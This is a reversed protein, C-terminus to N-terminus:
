MDVVITIERTQQTKPEIARIKIQIANFPITMTPHTGTRFGAAGAPVGASLLNPNLAFQSTGTDWAVQNLAPGLLPRIDEVAHTSKTPANPGQPAWNTFFKVSSFPAPLANVQNDLDVFERAIPDWIKVDFSLIRGILIDSGAKPTPLPLPRGENIGNTNNVNNRPYPAGAPGYRVWNDGWCLRRERFQVDTPTNFMFYQGAPAGLFPLAVSPPVVRFASVDYVTAYGPPDAPTTQRHVWANDATAANGGGTFYVYAMTPGPAVFAAYFPVGNVNPVDLGSTSKPTGDSLSLTVPGVFTEPVLLNERRILNAYFRPQGNEFWQETTDFVVYYSVEAWQSSFTGDPTGVNDYRAGPRGIFDLPSGFPVRGFFMDSSDNGNRRVTFHLEDDVDRMSWRPVALFPDNGEVVVSPGGAIQNGNQNGSQEVYRFFGKEPPVLRYNQVLGLRFAQLNATNTPTVLFNGVNPINPVPQGSATLRSLRRGGEFHDAQLDKRLLNATIRLQTELDSLAKLRSMSNLGVVFAESLIAMLFITLALAILMEVLTLGSRRM